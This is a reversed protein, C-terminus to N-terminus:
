LGQGAEEEGQGVKYHGHLSLLFERKKVEVHIGREEGIKKTEPDM